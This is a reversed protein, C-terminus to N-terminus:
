DLLDQVTYYYQVNEFKNNLTLEICAKEASDKNKYAKVIYTTLNVKHHEKILYIKDVNM